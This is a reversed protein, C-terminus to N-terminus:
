TPRYIVHLAGLACHLADDALTQHIANSTVSLGYPFLLCLALALFSLWQCLAIRATGFPRESVQRQRSHFFM